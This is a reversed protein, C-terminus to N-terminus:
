RSDEAVPLRLSFTTGKGLESEASLEGGMDEVFRKALALGLGSGHINSNSVSSARYFPHFIHKIEARDIGIGRDEVAINVQRSGNHKNGVGAQIGVWRSSGSYKVANSILNQLCQSLGGPDAAVPPLNPELQLDIKFEQTLGSTNELALHIAGAVDVARVSYNSNGNRTDAFRLVQEVLRNLQKSQDRIAAAYRALMEPNNVVGDAINEAASSIVAIPTRLEHSVGAVFEMQMRALRSARRTTFLTLAMTAALVLLVGFGLFLNRRRLAATAAEISGMRHRVLLQWGRDEASYYLPDIRVPGLWDPINEGRLPASHMSRPFFHNFGMGSNPPGSPSGPPGFLNLSADASAVNWANTGPTSAYLLHTGDTGADLVEVEYEGSQPDGFHHQVLGPLISSQLVGPSLEILLWAGAQTNKPTPSDPSPDWRRVLAPIHQDIQWIEQSHRGPEGPHAREGMGRGEWLAPHSPGPGSWMGRPRSSMAELRSHLSEFDSPWAISEFQNDNPLLRLLVYRVSDM